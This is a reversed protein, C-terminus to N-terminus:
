VITVITSPKRSICSCFGLVVHGAQTFKACTHTTSAGFTAMSESLCGVDGLVHIYIQIYM